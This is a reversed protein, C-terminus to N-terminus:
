TSTSTRTTPQQRQESPWAGSDIKERALRIIATPKVPIPRGDHSVILTAEPAIYFKGGAATQSRRMRQPQSDSIVNAKRLQPFPNMGPQRLDEHCEIM